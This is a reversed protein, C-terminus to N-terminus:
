QNVTFLFEDNEVINISVFHNGALVSTKIRINNCLGTTVLLFNYNQEHVM